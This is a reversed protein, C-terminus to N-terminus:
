FVTAKKSSTVPIGPPSTRSRPRKYDYGEQLFKDMFGSETVQHPVDTMVRKERRKGWITSSFYLARDDSKWPCSPSLRAVLASPCLSRTPSAEWRQAFSDPYSLTIPEIVQAQQLKFSVRLRASLQALATLAPSRRPPV